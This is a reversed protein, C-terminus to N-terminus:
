VLSWGPEKSLRTGKMLDRIEEVEDWQGTAACMNSLSVYAGSDSPQMDIVKKAALRGIEANGHLRCAALLTGWILADPKIPMNSIFIEAEKLRGSRGLLDVMCAYHCLHPEIGHDKFMSNLHFYGEEVLGAHSCASLVGVFTVADPEVGESKMAEYLKLAEAGNGHQAYSVIMTTWSVLDPKIIQNFAKHCDNAVGCKSYMTVLSSGVNVDSDLGLKLILSHLQIGIDIRISVADSGLISSVTYTDVQLNAARMGHLVSLAEQIDGTQAYGSVLASCMVQDKHPIMDFVRRSLEIAGCKSYMNVLAGGTLSESSLVARFFMAM